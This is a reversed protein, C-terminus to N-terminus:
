FSHVTASIEKIISKNEEIATGIVIVDAGAKCSEGAMAATRIGGGVILPISINERVRKIMSVRISNKAGSGADMYIIKMGLMEGAMATCLAIDDKDAPIPTTNSIYAVTTSNGSEVLIYGTPLIELKSSKLLPAAIVHNGILMEPNRGSILSLLLIADASKNVQLVSGPFLVVPISSNKKIHSISSELNGNTILSGGIFFFDVKAKESEAILESLADNEMKDPDILLALSKQSSKKKENLISLISPSMTKVINIM